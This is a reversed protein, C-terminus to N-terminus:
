NPAASERFLQRLHQYDADPLTPAELSRANAKLHEVNSTGTIVTSIGNNMAAFRYGADIVSEVGDHLLWGFPDQEDLSSLDVTGDKRWEDFLAAQDDARTLTSRVPAMNMIAVGRQEALQLVEKAAWQNLIGYKLMIVDWTDPHDKLAQLPVTHKPDQDMKETFGILRIKGQERLMELTPVYREVVTEYHGPLIGHFQMVDILDTKLLRLSRELGTVLAAPEAYEGAPRYSWKTALLYSDRPAGELAQGLLEESRGYQESTDFLNVGLELATHVLKKRGADDVGTKQGFQSAGGTGLSLVSADIGSRGLIRNNM